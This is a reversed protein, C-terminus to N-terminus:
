ECKITNVAFIYFIECCYFMSRLFLDDLVFKYKDLFGSGLLGAMEINCNKRFGDFIYSCDCILFTTEFTMDDATFSLKIKEQVDKGNDIGALSINTKEIESSFISSEVLTKDIISMESGTDIVFNFDKGEINVTIVPAYNVMKFPRLFILLNDM